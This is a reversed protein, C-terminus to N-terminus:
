CNEDHYLWQQTEGPLEDAHQANNVPLRKEKASSLMSLIAVTLSSATLTPSWDDTLLNLCIDGNSYIHSHRPPTGIFHINPPSLPYNKPFVIKMKYKEGEYITGSCGTLTVIWLRINAGVSVSVGQPPSLTIQKLEKQIRYNTEGPTYRKALITRTSRSPRVTLVLSYPSRPSFFRLSSPALSAPVSQLISYVSTNVERCFFFLLSFVIALMM